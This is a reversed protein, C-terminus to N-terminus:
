PVVGFFSGGGASGDCTASTTFTTRPVAAGLAAFRPGLLIGHVLPTPAAAAAGMSMMAGLSCEGLLRHVAMHRSPMGGLREVHGRVSVYSDNASLVRVCIM